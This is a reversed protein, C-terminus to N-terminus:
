FVREDHNMINCRRRKSVTKKRLRENFRSTLLLLSDDMKNRAWSSIFPVFSKLSRWQLNNKKENPIEGSILNKKFAKYVQTMQFRVATGSHGHM